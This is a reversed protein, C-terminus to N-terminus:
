VPQMPFVQVNHILKHEFAHHTAKGRSVVVEWQTASLWTTFKANKRALDHSAYPGATGADYM